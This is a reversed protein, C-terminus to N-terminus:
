AYEIDCVLIMRASRREHLTAPQLLLSRSGRDAAGVPAGDAGARVIVGASDFTEALV